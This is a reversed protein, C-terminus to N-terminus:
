PPPEALGGHVGSPGHDAEGHGSRHDERRVDREVVTAPPEAHDVRTADMLAARDAIQGVDLALCPQEEAGIPVQRFGTHSTLGRHTALAAGPTMERQRDAGDVARHRGCGRGCAGAAPAGRAKKHRNSYGHVQTVHWPVASRWAPRGFQHRPPTCVPSASSPQATRRAAKELLGLVPVFDDPQGATQHAVVRHGHHVERLAWVLPDRLHLGM